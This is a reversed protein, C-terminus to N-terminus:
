NDRIIQAVNIRFLRDYILYKNQSSVNHRLIRIDYIFM